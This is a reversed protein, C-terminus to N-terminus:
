AAEVWHVWREHEDREGPWRFRLGCDPCRFGAGGDELAAAIIERAYVLDGDDLAEGARILCERFRQEASM